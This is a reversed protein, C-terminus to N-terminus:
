RMTIQLTEAHVRWAATMANITKSWCSHDYPRASRLLTHTNHGETSSSSNSMCQLDKFNAIRCRLGLHPHDLM